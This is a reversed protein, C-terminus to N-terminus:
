VSKCGGWIHYPNIWEVDRDADRSPAKSRKFRPFLDIGPAALTESIALLLSDLNRNGNYDM